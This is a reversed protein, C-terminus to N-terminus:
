DPVRYTAGFDRFLLEYAGETVVETGADLGSTLEVWGDAEIGTTVARRDYGPGDDSGSDSDSGSDGEPRPVFVFPRDQEDRVVAAEPVAVADAHGALRVTGSVTEGLGWPPLAGAPAEATREVDLPGGEIWVTVAGGAGREPLVRAITAAGGDSGEDAEAGRFGDFTVPAGELDGQGDSAGAPSPPYLSAVVRLHRADVIRGLAEGAAVDQGAAVRRGTFTGGIPAQLALASGLADLEQRAADREARVAALEGEAALLEDRRVLQEALAQRRLAVTEEATRIREDLSAVRQELTTRRSEAAPGALRFLLDGPAVEAGDAAGVSVIRGAQLAVVTVSRRSEVTGVWPAALAFDRRAARATPLAGSARDGPEAGATPAPGSCATWLAVGTLVLAASLPRVVRRSASRRMRNM